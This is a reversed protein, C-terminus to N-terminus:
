QDLEFGAPLDFNQAPATTQEEPVGFVSERLTEPRLGMGEARVEYPKLATEARKMSNSYIQKSQKIFDARQEETLRTGELVNNYLARIKGPAGTANQANAFEGERVTSGPDLVKMFSFILSMDGAATPDAATIRDYATSVVLFNDVRKDRKLGTVLKEMNDFDKQPDRGNEEANKTIDSIIKQSELQTKALNAKAQEFSLAEKAADMPNIGALPGLEQQVASGYQRLQEDTVDAWDIGQEKLGNTFEEFLDPDAVELYRRPSRSNVVAESFRYLQMAEQQDIGYQNQQISQGGSVLGMAEQALQPSAQALVNLNERSPDAMYNAFLDNYQARDNMLMNRADFQQQGLQNQLRQGKIGEAQSLVNGLSFVQAM